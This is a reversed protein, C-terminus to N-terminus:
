GCLLMYMLYVKKTQIIRRIRQWRRCILLSFNYPQVFLQLALFFSPAKKLISYCNMLKSISCQDEHMAKWLRILLTPFWKMEVPEQSLLTLFYESKHRAAPPIVWEMGNHRWELMVWLISNRLILRNILIFNLPLTM